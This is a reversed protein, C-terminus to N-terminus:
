FLPNRKHKQSSIKWAVAFFGAVLVFVKPDFSELGFFILYFILCLCITVAGSVVLKRRQPDTM